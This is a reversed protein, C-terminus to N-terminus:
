DFPRTTKKVQFVALGKKNIAVEIQEPYSSKTQANIYTAHPTPNTQSPFFPQILPSNFLFGFGHFM